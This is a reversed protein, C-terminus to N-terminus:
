APCFVKQGTVSPMPMVEHGITFRYAKLIALIVDSLVKGAFRSMSARINSCRKM